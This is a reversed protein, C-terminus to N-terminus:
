ELGLIIYYAKKLASIYRVEVSILTQEGVLEKLCIERGRHILYHDAYTGTILNIKEYPTDIGSLLLGDPTSELVTGSDEAVPIGAGFTQFLSSRVLLTEGTWEITDIVPSRNVSHTYRISFSECAKIDHSYVVKDGDVCKVTLQPVVPVLVCVAIIIGATLLLTLLKQKLTLVM